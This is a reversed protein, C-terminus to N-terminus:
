SAVGAYSSLASLRRYTCAASVLTMHHYWGPFSRGEFDHLGFEREMDTLTAATATCLEALSALRDLGTGTLSTIWVLGPRSAPFVEAFLRCSPGSSPQHPVGPLRVPSTQVRTIRQRGDPATVLVTEVTGSGHATAVAGAPAPAAATGGEGTRLVPLHHPVAIVFDYRRRLLGSLLRGTDPADSMDAIVPVGSGGTRAALVDLLELAHAWGPQHRVDEPIRARRRRQEDALWYEPLLLRWEVPVQVGGLCLFAGLGVQCNVSRGSAPDFWSRVGVSRDGRKPLLARALVWHPAPGHGDAWRTLEQMVPNWDWPSLNIFQRLSHVATPSSSIAGALRRVSKKGTTRLVGALYARAWRRQDTRRLSRFINETFDILPADLGDSCDQVDPTAQAFSSPTAM